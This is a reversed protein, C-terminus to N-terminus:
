AVCCCEGRRHEGLTSAAVEFGAARLTRRIGATTEDADDLVGRLWEADESDLGGIIRGVKCPAGDSVRRSGAAAGSHLESLLGMVGLCCCVCVLVLPAGEPM